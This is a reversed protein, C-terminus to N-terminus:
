CSTAHPAWVPPSATAFLRVALLVWDVYDREARREKRKFRIEIRQIAGRYHDEPRGKEDLFPALERRARM